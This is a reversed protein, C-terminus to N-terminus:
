AGTVQLEGHRWGTAAQPDTARASPVHHPSVSLMVGGTGPGPRRRRRDGTDVGDRLPDDDPPPPRQAAEGGGEADGHQHHARQAEAQRVDGRVNGDEGRLARRDAPEEAHGLLHVEWCEEADHQEQEGRRGVGEDPSEHAAPGSDREQRGGEGEEQQGEVVEGGQV